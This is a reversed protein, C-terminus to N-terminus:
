GQPCLIDGVTLIDYRRIVCNSVMIFSIDLTCPFDLGGKGRSVFIYTMQSGSMM